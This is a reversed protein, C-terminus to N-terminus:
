FVFDREDIVNAFFTGLASVRACKRFNGPLFFMVVFALAVPFFWHEASRDVSLLVTLSPVRFFYSLHPSISFLCIFVVLLLFLISFFM